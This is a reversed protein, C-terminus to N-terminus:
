AEVAVLCGGRLVTLVFEGFDGGVGAEGVDAIGGDAGGPGVGWVAREGECGEGGVVVGEEEGVARGFVAFEANGAFM